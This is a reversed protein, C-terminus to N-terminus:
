QPKVEVFESVNAQKARSSEVDKGEEDKVFSVADEPDDETEVCVSTSDKATRHREEPDSIPALRGDRKLVYGSYFSLSEEKEMGDLVAQQIKNITM